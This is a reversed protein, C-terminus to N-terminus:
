RGEQSENGSLTKVLFRETSYVREYGSLTVYAFGVVRGAILSEDLTCIVDSGSTTCPLTVMGGDVLRMEVSATMGYLDVPIGNDNISVRLTTGSADGADVYVVRTGTAQKGIDLTMRQTNVRIM